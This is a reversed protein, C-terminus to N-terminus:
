EGGEGRYDLEKELDDKLVRRLIKGTSSKPLAEKTINIYKPVKFRALRDHCYALIEKETMQSGSKLMVTAAVTEGKRIDTVGYVAVEKIDPHTYLAAEVEAPYINFGGRIIMDKKRDVIYIFGDEDMKALDGTHLWGNKLAEETAEPKQLYGKMNLSGRQVLEGIEGPPLKNDNEDVIACELDIGEYPIGCSGVKRVGPPTATANGTGETLGWGELLMCNFAKEVRKYLEEPVPAAGALVLSLSRMDYNNAMELLGLVMTPVGLFCSVRYKEILKATEEPSFWEQLVVPWKRLLSGFTTTNLGFIHSLPACCLVVMEGLMGFRNLQGEIVSLLNGHTLMVGKPTGTTGATFLILAVDDQSINVPPQANMAKGKFEEYGGEGENSESMQVITGLDVGLAGAKKLVPMFQPAVFLVKAQTQELQPKIEHETLLINIPQAIAGCKVIGLFLSLFQTCNGMYLVVVDNKEVGHSHLASSVTEAEDVLEGYTIAYGNFFVAQKRRIKENEVFEYFTSYFDKMENGERIKGSEPM